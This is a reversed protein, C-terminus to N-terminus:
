LYSLVFFTIGVVLAMFCGVSKGIEIDMSKKKRPACHRGEFSALEFVRATEDAFEAGNMEYGYYRM